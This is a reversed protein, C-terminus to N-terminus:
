APDTSWNLSQVQSRNHLRSVLFVFFSFFIIVLLTMLTGAIDIVSYVTIYPNPLIANLELLSFLKMKSTFLTGAIDIMSHRFTNTPKVNLELLGYM